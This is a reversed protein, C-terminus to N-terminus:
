PTSAKNEKPGVLRKYTIPYAMVSGSLTAFAFAFYWDSLDVPKIIGIELGVYFWTANIITLFVLMFASWGLALRRPPPNHTEWINLLAILTLGAIAGAAFGSYAILIKVWAARFAFKVFLFILTQGCLLLALGKLRLVWIEAASIM